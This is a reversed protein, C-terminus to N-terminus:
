QRHILEAIRKKLIELEPARGAFEVSGNIIIIPTLTPNIALHSYATFNSTKSVEVQVRLATAATRILREVHATSDTPKALIEIKM